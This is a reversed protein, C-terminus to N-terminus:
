PSPRRLRTNPIDLISLFFIPPLCANPGVGRIGDTISDQLLLGMEEQVKSAWSAPNGCKGSGFRPPQRRMSSPFAVANREDRPYALTDAPYAVAIELRTFSSVRLSCDRAQMDWEGDNQCPSAVKQSRKLRVALAQLTCPDVKIIQHKERLIFLKM